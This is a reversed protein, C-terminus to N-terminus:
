IEKPEFQGFGCPSTIARSMTCAVIPAEATSGANDLSLTNIVKSRIINYNM